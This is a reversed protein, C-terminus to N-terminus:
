LTSMIQPARQQQQLFTRLVALQDGNLPPVVHGKDHVVTVPSEFREVLMESWPALRDRTGWSLLAPCRIKEQYAVQLLVTNQRGTVGLHCSAGTASLLACCTGAAVAARGPAAQTAVAGLRLHHVPARDPHRAPAAAAARAHSLDASWGAVTVSSTVLSADPRLGRGHALLQQLLSCAEHAFSAQSFGVLGDFPGMHKLPDRVCNVSAEYGKYWTKGEDDQSALSARM